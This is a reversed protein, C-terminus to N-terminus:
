DESRLTITNENREYTINLPLTIAKLAIDLDDHIFKGTILQNTDIGATKVNVNYQRELENIVKQLPESSFHTENNIWSPASATTKNNLLIGSKFSDGASLEFNKSNYTVMVLGEYCIVEFDSGRNKVNFETGLVAVTGKSTLVKFKEGKAVKFYAEGKLNIERKQLWTKENFSIESMANILVESTDPLLTTIKESALAKVTTEKNAFLYYYFLSFGIVLIAAIRSLPIWMKRIKNKPARKKDLLSILMQDTDIDPAKFHQLGKSLKILEDYDDLAEFLKLEESNLDNDLWKKILVAREM